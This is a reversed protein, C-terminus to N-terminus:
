NIKGSLNIEYILNYKYYFFLNQLKNIKTEPHLSWAGVILV